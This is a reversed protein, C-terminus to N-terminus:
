NLMTITKERHKNWKELLSDLTPTTTWEQMLEQFIKLESKSLDDAPILLTENQHPVFSNATSNM